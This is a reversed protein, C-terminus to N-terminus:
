GKNAYWVIHDFQEYTLPDKKGKNVIKLITDIYRWYEEYIKLEKALKQPNSNDDPMKFYNKPLKEGLYAFVYNVLKKSVVKDYKPYQNKLNLFGSAYACFKSAFSFNYRFSENGDKDKKIATTKDTLVSILHNQNNSEFQENLLAKLSDINSKKCAKCIRNRMEMRGSVSSVLHTSNSSDISIVAGLIARKFEAESSAMSMQKFWWNFSGCYLGKSDNFMTEPNFKDDPKVENKQKKYNSDLNIVAEIFHSNKETLAALKTEGYEMVDLDYPTSGTILKCM